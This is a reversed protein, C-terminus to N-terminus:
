ALLKSILDALYHQFLNTVKKQFRSQLDEFLSKEYGATM